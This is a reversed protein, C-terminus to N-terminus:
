VRHPQGAHAPSCIVLRRGPSVALCGLSNHGQSAKPRLLPECLARRQDKPVWPIRTRMRRGVLTNPKSYLGPSPWSSLSQKSPSHKALSIPFMHFLQVSGIKGPRCLEILWFNGNHNEFLLNRGRQILCLCTCGVPINQHALRTVAWPRWMDKPVAHTHRAGKAIATAHVFLCNAGPLYCSSMVCTYTSSTSRGVRLSIKSFSKARPLQVSDM